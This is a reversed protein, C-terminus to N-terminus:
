GAIVRLKRIKENADVEAKIDPYLEFYKKYLADLKDIDKNKLKGRVTLMMIHLVEKQIISHFKRKEKDKTKDKILPIKPLNM